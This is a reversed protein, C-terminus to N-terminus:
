PALRLEPPHEMPGVKPYDLFLGTGEGFALGGKWGGEALELPLGFGPSCRVVARDSVHRGKDDFSM